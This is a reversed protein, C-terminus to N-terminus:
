KKLFKICQLMCLYGKPVDPLDNCNKFLLKFCLYIITAIQSKGLWNKDDYVYCTILLTYNWGRCILDSFKMGLNHVCYVIQLKALIVKLQMKSANITIIQFTSLTKPKSLIDSIDQAGPRRITWLTSTSNRDGCLSQRGGTM